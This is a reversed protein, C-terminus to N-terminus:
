HIIASEQTHHDFFSIHQRVLQQFNQKVLVRCCLSM